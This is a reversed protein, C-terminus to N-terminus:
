IAMSAAFHCKPCLAYKSVKGAASAYSDDSIKLIFGIFYFIGSTLLINPAEINKM